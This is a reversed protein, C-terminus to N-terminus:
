PAFSPQPTPSPSTSAFNGYSFNIELASELEIVYPNARGQTQLNITAGSQSRTTAPAEITVDTPLDMINMFSYKGAADTVVQFDNGNASITVVVGALKAGSGTQTITGFVEGPPAYIFKPPATEGVTGFQLRASTLTYTVNGVAFTAPATFTYEVGDELDFFFAEGTSETQAFLSFEGTPTYEVTLGQVATGDALEAIAVASGEPLAFITAPIATTAPFAIISECGNPLAIDFIIGNSGMFRLSVICIEWTGPAVPTDYIGEDNTSIVITDGAARRRGTAGGIDAIQTLRVQSGAVPQAGGVPSVSGAVSGAVPQAGGVPSSALIQGTIRSCVVDPGDVCFECGAPNLCVVEGSGGPVATNGYGELQGGYACRTSNENVCEVVNCLKVNQPCQLCILDPTTYYGKKCSSAGSVPPCIPDGYWMSGDNTLPCAPALCDNLAASSSCTVCECDPSGPNENDCVQGTPCIVFTKGNAGNDPAYQPDEGDLCPTTINRDSNSTKTFTVEEIRLTPLVNIHDQTAACMAELCPLNCVHLVIQSTHDDSASAFAAELDAESHSAAYQRACAGANSMNQTNVCWDYTDVDDVNAAIVNLYGTIFAVAWDDDMLDGAKTIQIWGGDCWFEDTPQVSSTIFVETFEFQTQTETVTPAPRNSMHYWAKDIIKGNGARVIGEKKHVRPKGHGFSPWYNEWDGSETPEPGPTGASFSVGHNNIVRGGADVVTGEAAANGAGDETYSRGYKDKGFKNFGTYTFGEAGYGDVDFAKGKHSFYAMENQASVLATAALAAATKLFPNM